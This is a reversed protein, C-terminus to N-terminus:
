SLLIRAEEKVSILASAIPNSDNFSHKLLAQRLDNADRNSSLAAQTRIEQLLKSKSNRVTNWLNESIYIQQSLNYEFEQEIHQVLLTEYASKEMSIPAIRVLLNRLDNRELFLTLREYAQLRLNFKDKELNQIPVAIADRKNNQKVFESFYFYAIAGTVIAPFTYSFTEILFDFQM